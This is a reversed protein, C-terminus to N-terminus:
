QDAGRQTPQYLAAIQPIFREPNAGVLNTLVIVALRDDPYVIFAARAGGVSARQPNAPTGLVPWGASWSGDAGSNLKEPTWMGRLSAASILRGDSLAVIWRAVEDATTQIGGGAWLSPPM